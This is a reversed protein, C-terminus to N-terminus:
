YPHWLHMPDSHHTIANYEMQKIETFERINQRRRFLAASFEEWTYALFHKEYIKKLGLEGFDEEYSDILRIHEDILNYLPNIWPPISIASRSVAFYVNSAGRQSPIM